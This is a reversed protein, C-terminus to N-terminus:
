LPAYKEYYYQTGKELRYEGFSIAAEPCHHLCAFCYICAEKFFPKGDTMEINGAPCNKACLGCSICKDGAGAPQFEDYLFRWTEEYKKRSEESYGTEDMFIKKEKIDGAIVRMTECHTELYSLDYTNGLLQATNDPLVVVKAYSLEAHKKELCRRVTDLTNGADGGCTVVCFCYCADPIECNEMFKIVSEPADYCYVPFVFGLRSHRSNMCNDADECLATGRPDAGDKAAAASERPKGLDAAREGQLDMHKTEERLNMPKVEESLFKGLYDATAKSNGTASFYYIM